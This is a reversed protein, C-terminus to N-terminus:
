GVGRTSSMPVVRVVASGASRARHGGIALGRPSQSVARRYRSRAAIAVRRPSLSVASRYCSRAAIALGHAIAVRRQSLSVTSRYRVASRYCSRAAIARVCRGM